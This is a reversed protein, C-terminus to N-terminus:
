RLDNLIILFSFLQYLRGHPNNGLLPKFIQASGLYATDRPNIHSM